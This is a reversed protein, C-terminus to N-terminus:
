GEHSVADFVCGRTPPSLGGLVAAPLTRRDSTATHHLRGARTRALVIIDFPPPSFQTSPTKSHDFTHKPAQRNGSAGRVLM